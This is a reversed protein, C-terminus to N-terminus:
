VKSDVLLGKIPDPNGASIQRSLGMVEGVSLERIIGGTSSDLVRIAPERSSEDIVIHIDRTINQVYDSIMDVALNLAEGGTQLPSNNGDGSLPQRWRRKGIRGVSGPIRSIM